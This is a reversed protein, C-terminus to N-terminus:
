LFTEIEYVKVKKVANKNEEDTFKASGISIFNAFPIKYRRHLFVQKDLENNFNEIIFGNRKDICQYSCINKNLQVFNGFRQAIDSCMEDVM